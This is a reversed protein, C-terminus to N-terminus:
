LRGRTGRVSAGPRAGRARVRRPRATRLGRAGREPRSRRPPRASSAGAPARPACEGRGTAARPGGGREPEGHDLGSCPASLPARAASSCRAPLSGVRGCGSGGGGGGGGSQQRRLKWSPRGRPPALRAELEPARNTSAAARSPWASTAQMESDGKTGPPLLLRRMRVSLCSRPASFSSLAPRAWDAVAPGGTPGEAVDSDAAAPSRPGGVRCTGRRM